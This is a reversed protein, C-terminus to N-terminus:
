RPVKTPLYTKLDEVYSELLGTYLAERDYYDITSSELDLPVRPRLILHLLQLCEHVPVLLNEATCAELYAVLGATEMSVTETTTHAADLVRVEWERSIGQLTEALSRPIRKVWVATGSFAVPLSLPSDSVILKMRRAM